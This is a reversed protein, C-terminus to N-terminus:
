DASARNVVIEISDFEILVDEDLKESAEWDEPISINESEMEGVELSKTFGDEYIPKGNKIFLVEIEVTHLKVKSNNTVNVQIEDGIKTYSTEVKDNYLTGGGVIDQYERDIKISLDIKEPVYSNYNEDYPLDITFVYNGGSIFDLFSTSGNGIKNGNADYYAGYVNISGINYDNNNTLCVILNDKEYDVYTEVSINEDADININYKQSDDSSKGCGTALGFILSGCILSLFIKKM